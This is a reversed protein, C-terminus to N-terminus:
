VSERATMGVLPLGNALITRAAALLALRARRRKENDDRLIHETKEYYHNAAAAFERLYETLLHPARACAARCIVDPFEMMRECLVLASEEDALASADFAQASLFTDGDKEAGRTCLACLRAHTYQIYFSPNNKSKARALDVNVDLHQDNKRCVFFYRAADRGVVRVFEGLAVFEGGRTSMKVRGGNRDMLAVFQILPTELSDADGGLARVAATLRPVYGHHDAGLINILRTNPARSLKDKHYAIDAAFYTYEGNDRRLVRDKDDGSDCTRFWLAGDKEYLMQRPLSDLAAVIKDAARLDDRESFWRDFDDVGMAQLDAIISDKMVAVVAASWKGFAADDAFEKKAAATLMDAAIDAKDAKAMSALLANIQESSASDVKPLNDQRLQMAADALYDGRYSGPPMKADPPLRCRLWASAALIDIQKGADNLYYERWVKVGAFTLIKALADGFAAARGHGIHLPGTPNASVFELLVSDASPPQRGYNAGCQLVEVVAAAKSQRKLRINIFGAGAIDAADVFDPLAITQLLREAVDRPKEGTLKAVMLAAPTALDGNAADRPKGIPPPASLPPSCVRAFARALTERYRSPCDETRM